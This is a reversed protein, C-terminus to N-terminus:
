EKGVVVVCVCVCVCVAKQARVQLQAMKLVDEMGKATRAAPDRAIVGLGSCPADLLVRDLSAKGLKLPLTRGDCCSVISNTVGMRALNAILSPLREKKMDNAILVGTNGMCQAIHTTKGGPAAAMDLVREGGLPSLAIVPVFSAASQLMYHGALYEPTAGIPVPSEMVKFGAKAWPGVPELNVGRTMLAQALDRRKTKLTNVRITVPPPAENAEFFL